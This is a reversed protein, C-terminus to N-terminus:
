FFLFLFVGSAMTYNGNGYTFYPLPFYFIIYEFVGMSVWEENKWDLDKWQMNTSNREARVKILMQYIIRMLVTWNQKWFSRHVLNIKNEQNLRSEVQWDRQIICNKDLKFHHFCYIFFTQPEYGRWFIVEQFYFSNSFRAVNSQTQCKGCEQKPWQVRLRHPASFWNIRCCFPAGPSM